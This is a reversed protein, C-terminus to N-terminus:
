AREMRGPSAASQTGRTNLAERLAAALFLPNGLIYRRWMRGPEQALRWIWELGRGRLAVPAREVRGAFFDFLGGVGILVAANLRHANAAIWQDQMPVGM